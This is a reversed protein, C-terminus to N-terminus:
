LIKINCAAPGNMSFGLNFNVRQGIKLVNEPHSEFNSIHAFVGDGIEACQIFYFSLHESMIHGSFESLKGSPEVALGQIKSKRQPAVRAKKLLGFLESSKKRDGSLYCQRAFWFQADYNSDGPSFSRRLHHVIQDSNSADNKSILLKAYHLHLAKSSPNLAIGSQLLGEAGSLDGDQERQRALAITLFESSANSKYAGELAEKAKDYMKLKKSLDIKVTLMHEDGPFRQLGKYITNEVLKIQELLARNELDSSAEDVGLSLRDSLEDLHLDALACIPRSDNPNKTLKELLLKAESRYKEKEIRIRSANAMRKYILAKTHLISKDSRGEELSDEAKNIASFAAGIDSGPHNLEFVAKQHWIYSMPAGCEEAAEYIRSVLVKDGFVRSLIKGKILESFAISDAEYDINMHRIVRIIQDAKEVPNKLAQDFVFTAILSHRSVYVYDRSKQDMYVNVVHELPLLFESKFNEIDIGSIRSILGARVPVGLRNLTCIDLYLIKAELPTIREYEDLVIQEFPRGSTAEHLAVLLQRDATLNLSRKIDDRSLSKHNIFCNHKTLKEILEDTERDTLKEIEYTADVYSELEEGEQNWENNRAALLITASISEHKLYEYLKILDNKNNIADDVVFLIRDQSSVLLEKVLAPRLVAGERVVVVCASLDNAANWAIRKLAMSKGSGAHGKLLLTKIGRAAGDILGDILVQEVVRRKIDLNGSIAGWGSSMGKYFDIPKAGATPMGLYVYELETALYHILEKSVESSQLFIKFFPQNDSVVMKSLVRKGPEIEANLARLFAEFTIALPEIRNASWMQFDFKNLGPDVVMYTPRHIGVDMLDFLIHQINPDSLQYGCFIIPNDIGFDALHRFLRIRNKKHKAYEESALILPLNPDNITNICGHLKFYPLANPDSIADSFKDGDRIIPYLVQLRDKVQDYAREIILDYNTTFVAHWKFTPILKHFDAPNLNKFKDKIFVQVETLSSQHKAYDAVRVLTKDKQEGGLFKDCILDRLKEASLPKSGDDSISGISCGAGLFLIAKGEKIKEIMWPSILGSM